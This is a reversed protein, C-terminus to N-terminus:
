MAAAMPTRKPSNSTAPPTNKPLDHVSAGSSSISGSTLSTIGPPVMVPM